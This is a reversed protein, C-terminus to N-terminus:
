FVVEEWVFLLFTCGEEGGLFFFFFIFFFCFCFFFFFFFVWVWVVFFSCQGSTHMCNHTCIYINTHTHTHTHTHKCVGENDKPEEGGDAGM